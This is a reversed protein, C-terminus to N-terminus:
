LPHDGRDAAQGWRLQAARRRDPGAPGGRDLRRPPAAWGYPHGRRGRARRRGAADATSTGDPTVRPATAATLYASLTAYGVADLTARLTGGSGTASPTLTLGRGRHADTEHDGIPQEDRAQVGEPDIIEALRRGIRALLVPDFSRASDIMTTEAQPRKAIPTAAPLDAIAHLCVKAQELSLVGAALAAGVAPLDDRLSM